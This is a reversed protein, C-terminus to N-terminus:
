ACQGAASRPLWNRRHYPTYGTQKRPCGFKTAAVAVAVAVEVQTVKEGGNKSRRAARGDKGEEGAFDEGGGQDGGNVTCGRRGM